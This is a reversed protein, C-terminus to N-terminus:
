EAEGVEAFVGDENLFAELEYFDKTQKIYQWALGAYGYEAECFKIADNFDTFKRYELVNPDDIKIIM